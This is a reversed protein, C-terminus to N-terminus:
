DSTQEPKARLHGILFLSAFLTIWTLPNKAVRIFVDAEDAISPVRTAVMAAAVVFAVVAAVTVSSALVSAVIMSRRGRLGQRGTAFVDVLCIVSVGAAYALMWKTSWRLENYPKVLGKRRLYLSIRQTLGPILRLGSLMIIADFLQSMSWFVFAAVAAAAVGAIGSAWTEGSDTLDFANAAVSPLVADNGFGWQFAMWVLLGGVAPVKWGSAAAFDGKATEWVTESAVVTERPVVTERKPLRTLSRM